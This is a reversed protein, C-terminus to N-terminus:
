ATGGLSGAGGAAAAAGGAAAAQEQTGGGVAAAPDADGGSAVVRRPASGGAASVALVLLLAVAAALHWRWRLLGMDRVGGQYKGLHARFGRGSMYILDTSPSALPQNRPAPRPRNTCQSWALWCPRSSEHGRTPPI